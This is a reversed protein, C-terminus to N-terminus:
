LVVVVDSVVHRSAIAKIIISTGNRLACVATWVVFMLAEGMGVGSAAGEAMAKTRSRVQKRVHM